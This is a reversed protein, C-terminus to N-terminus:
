RLRLHAPTFEDSSTWEWGDQGESQYGGLEYALWEREAAAHRATDLQEQTM